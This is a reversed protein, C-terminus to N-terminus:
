ISVVAQGAATTIQVQGSVGRAGSSALFARAATVGPVALAAAVIRAKLLQSPFQRGLGEGFWPVGQSPPGYYLEGAFLRVASATDQVQAYPESALAVNGTADMCLDWAGRDLLLTKM